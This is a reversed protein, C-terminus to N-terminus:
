LPTSTKYAAKRKRRRTGLEEPTFARKQLEIIMLPADRPFSKGHRMNDDEHAINFLWVVLHQDGPNNVPTRPIPIRPLECALDQM